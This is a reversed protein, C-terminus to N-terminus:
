RQSDGPNIIALIFLAAGALITKLWDVEKSEYPVQKEQYETVQYTETVDEYIKKTETRTKTVIEKTYRLLTKKGYFIELAQQIATLGDGVASEGFLPKMTRASIGEVRFSVNSGSRSKVHGAIVTEVGLASNMRRIDEPTIKNLDRGLSNKITSPSVISFKGNAEPHRQVANRLLDSIETGDSPNETSSTFPLFALVMTQGQPPSLLPPRVTRYKPVKVEEQYPIEVNKEVLKPVTRSKTVQVPVTETKYRTVTQMCSTLFPIHVVILTVASVKKLNMFSDEKM